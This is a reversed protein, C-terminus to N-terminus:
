SMITEADRCKIVVIVAPGVDIDRAVARGVNEVPIISISGESICGDHTAYGVVLISTLLSAHACRNRIVVPIPLQVDELGVKGIVRRSEIVIVPIARKRVHGVSRSNSGIGLKQAPTDHEKVIVIIAPGIQNQRVAM